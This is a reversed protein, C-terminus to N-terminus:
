DEYTRHSVGKQIGGASALAASSLVTDGVSRIDEGRFYKEELVKAMTYASQSRLGHLANIVAARIEQLEEYSASAGPETSSLEIQRVRDELADLRAAATQKTETSM